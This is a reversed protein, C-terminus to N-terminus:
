NELMTRLRQLRGPTDVNLWVGRYYEGSVQHAPMAQTLVPALPFVGAQCSKFLAPQYVAIGSFTLRPTGDAYVHHNVLHFDGAPHHDPNDVLVLHALGALTHPLQELPYDCWVDSSVVVFPEEGLLPLANFIGGGTGLVQTTEPSYRIRVGYRSGDGLRNIIQEGLYAHNIIIETFGATVLRTITHEILCQGAVRLLPKPVTDTLPRMREGRGAALIM